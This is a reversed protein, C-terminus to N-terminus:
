PAPHCRAPDPKAPSSRAAYRREACREPHTKAHAVSGASARPRSLIYTYIREVHEPALDRIRVTGVGSRAVHKVDTRYASISNARLGAAVRGALWVDLWESLTTTDRDVAVVGGNRTKELRGIKDALETKTKGRVHKRWRKGTVPHDGLSVWGEWGQGDSRRHISSRGNAAKSM